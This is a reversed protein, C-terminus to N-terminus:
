WVATSHVPICKIAKPITKWSLLPKKFPLFLSVGVSM